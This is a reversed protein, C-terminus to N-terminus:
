AAVIFDGIGLRACDYGHLRGSPNTLSDMAIFRPDRTNAFSRIGRSIWGYGTLEVYGHQNARKDRSTCYYISVESGSVGTVIVPRVKAASGDHNEIPAWFVDGPAVGISGSDSFWGVLLVVIAIVAVIVFIVGVVLAAALVVCGILMGMFAAGGVAAIRQDNSANKSASWAPLATWAGFCALVAVLTNPSKPVLMLISLAVFVVLAIGRHNTRAAKVSFIARNVGWGFWSSCSQGPGTPTMPTGHDVTALQPDDSLADPVMEEMPDRPTGAVSATLPPAWAAVSPKSPEAPSAQPITPNNQNSM